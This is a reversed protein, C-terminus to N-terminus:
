NFSGKKINEKLAKLFTAKSNKINLKINYRYFDGTCILWLVKDVCYPTVRASKAIRSIAEFCRGIDKKDNILGLTLCIDLIHTDPKSFNYYGLEKIWNCTTSFGLNKIKSGIYCSLAERTADCNDFYKIFKTFEKYSKFSGVFKAGSIIGNAYREWLTWKKLKFENKFKKVLIDPTLKSIYKLDYNHLIKKILAKRKPDNFKIVNPLMQYDQLASLLLEYVGAITKEKLDCNSIFNKIKKEDVEKPAHSLLYNYSFNYVKELKMM